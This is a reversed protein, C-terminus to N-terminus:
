YNFLQGWDKKLLGTKILDAEIARLDAELEHKQELYSKSRRGHKFHAKAIRRRGEDTRPGTSKGGHLYSRGTRSVASAGAPTEQAREQM